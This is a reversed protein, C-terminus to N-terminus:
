QHCAPRGSLWGSSQTISSPTNICTPVGSSSCKSSSVHLPTSIFVNFFLADLQDDVLIGKWPQQETLKETTRRVNRWCAPIYRYVSNPILKHNMRLLYIRLLFGSVDVVWIVTMHITFKWDNELKITQKTIMCLVDHLKSWFNWCEANIMRRHKKEVTWNECVHLFPRIFLYM